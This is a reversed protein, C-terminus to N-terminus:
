EKIYVVRQRLLGTPTAVHENITLTDGSVEGSDPVGSAPVLVISQYTAHVVTVSREVISLGNGVVTREVLVTDSSLPALRGATVDAGA